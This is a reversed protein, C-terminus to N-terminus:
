SHSFPVGSSYSFMSRDNLFNWLNQSSQAPFWHCLVFMYKENCVNKFLLFFCTSNNKIIYKINDLIDFISNQCIILIKFYPTM